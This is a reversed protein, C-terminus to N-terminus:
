CKCCRLLTSLGNDLCDLHINFRWICGVDWLVRQMTCVFIHMNVNCDNSRWSLCHDPSSRLSACLLSQQCTSASLPFFFIGLVLFLAIVFPLGKHCSKHKKALSIVDVIPHSLWSIRYFLQSLLKSFWVFPSM